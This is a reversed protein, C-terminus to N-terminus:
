LALEKVHYLMGALEICRQREYIANVPMNRRRKSVISDCRKDGGGGGGAMRAQLRMSAISIAAVDIRDLYPWRQWQSM